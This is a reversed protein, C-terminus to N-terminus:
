RLIGRMRLVANMFRNNPFIWFRYLGIPNAGFQKKFLFNGRKSSAGFDVFRFDNECAYRIVDWYLLDNPNLHWYSDYSVNSWVHIGDKFIFAMIGAIPRGNHLAFMALYEDEQRMEKWIFKFLNFPLPKLNGKRRCVHLYMRYYEKLDIFNEIPKTDVGSKMAKRINNRRKKSLKRKWIFDPDSKELHLRLSIGYKDSCKYLRYLYTSFPSFSPTTLYSLLCGKKLCIKRINKLLFSVLEKGRNIVFHSFLPQGYVSHPIPILRKFPKNVVFLPILGVTGEKTEELALYLRRGLGSKELIKGWVYRHFYTSDICQRIFSDWVKQDKVIHLEYKM